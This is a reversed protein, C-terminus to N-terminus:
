KKALTAIGEALRQALIDVQETTNDLCFSIRLAGNIREPPLGMATLVHSKAGKACASGGSLYIEYQELYHIMVESGIGPLSLNVIHLAGNPPSNICVGELNEMKKILHSRLATLHATAESRKDWLEKAALGMGCIAPTNETGAHLGGEQESGYYLPLLRVGKRRYLAAAGKPGHIKHGSVTVMDVGFREPTVPLRCFSQVCDSHVLTNPNIRKVAASIAALDNISGTESNVHMVSVMVTQADVEAAIAEPSVTGDLGPAVRVVTFGERTLADAAALLSAHETATTIVKTGRRRLARCGGLLALNNAESGCSTFIIEDNRVGMVQAVQGRATTLAQEAVFGKHHLSSPNGYNETFMHCTLQAVTPSVRTTASNDLYIEM